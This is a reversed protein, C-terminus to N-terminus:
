ACGEITNKRLNAEQFEILDIIRYRVCRPSVKVFKPGKGHQRMQELYRVTVSLFASAEKTNIQRYLDASRNQAPVM